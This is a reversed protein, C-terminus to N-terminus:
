VQCKYCLVLKLTKPIKNRMIEHKKRLSSSQHKFNPRNRHDLRENFHRHRHEIPERGFKRKKAAHKITRHVPKNASKRECSDDVFTFLFVNFFSIFFYGVVKTKSDDNCDSDENQNSKRFNKKQPKETPFRIQPISKKTECEENDDDIIEGDSIDAEEEAQM